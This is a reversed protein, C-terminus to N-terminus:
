CCAESFKQQPVDRQHQQQPQNATPKESVSKTTLSKKRLWGYSTSSFPFMHTAEQQKNNLRDTKKESSLM